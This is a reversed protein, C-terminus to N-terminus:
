EKKLLYKPLQATPVMITIPNTSLWGFTLTDVLRDFMNTNIMINIGVLQYEDGIKAIVPGGSNGPKIHCDTILTKPIEKYINQVASNADTPYVSCTDIHLPRQTLGSGFLEGDFGISVLEMGPVVEELPNAIKIPKIDKIERDIFLMAWDRHPSSLYIYFVKKVMVPDESHGPFEVILQMFPYTSAIDAESKIHDVCHGATLVVHPRILAGTCQSIFFDYGKQKAKNFEELAKGQFIAPNTENTKFSSIIRGVFPFDEVGHTQRPDAHLSCTFVAAILLIFKM